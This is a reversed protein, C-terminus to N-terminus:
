TGVEEGVGQRRHDYSCADLHELHQLLAVLQMVTGGTDVYIASLYSLAVANSPTGAIDKFRYVKCTGKAGEAIVAGPTISWQSDMFEAKGDVVRSGVIFQIYLIDGDQWDSTVTAARTDNEDDFGQVGGILRMPMAKPQGTDQPEVDALESMESSCAALLLCSFFFSPILSKMNTPKNFQITRHYKYVHYPSIGTRTMQM